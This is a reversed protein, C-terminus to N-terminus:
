HSSAAVHGLLPRKAAPPKSSALICTCPVTRVKRLPFGDSHWALLGDCTPWDEINKNLITDDGFNVIEFEGFALLRKIIHKMQKSCAKKDMACVGVVIKPLDGYGLNEVDALGPAQM